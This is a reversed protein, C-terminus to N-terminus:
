DSAVIEFEEQLEADSSGGIWVRFSGTESKLKMDRGFFALDDTHLQFEVIQSQHPELRVRKFGKLEKVPRTVSGVLDRVYLQVVETAAVDSVNTLEVTVTVTDGLSIRSSSVNIDRYEFNAYSLGHGFAFLPTFGADLHFASMGLSTQPAHANIDDIHVISDASPPKGTNKHNYYIPIQGVMRPFTVPLKGSPSEIGFLLDAIAPGGMTGPHWAYLIADVELVINSLTLPRGAMIVVILPKGTERVRRVLEVQAGPLNIDARSHAEGSLIAEEGLFLIVADSNKAADVAEGFPETTKSRSTEMARVYRVDVNDGVLDRIASLGTVSLDADGDFVWTGLQEQPADALPGIVAISSLDSLQLPLAAGENKLMVVSELAAQRSIKLAGEDAIARYDAPNTYPNEFLGLRVKAQLISRVMADIMAIDISGDEVLGAIHNVYADGEMEMNVGAMVAEYASAKDGDTLGHIELQRVSDWDSVVFGDFQWEERLVQRLLFGNATAPVGDLDSFSTMLTIVGADVAAKFPRLYVNRLENEPINTTDYDRGSESAGYGAFHKACAAISGTAALDSGQFGEVMAAGLRSALYPDEGLSEAIRGWRADRSIDVMPAFTWNVGTSAAEEAAIEAGRKVIEPNFSAAQGLPIPLVTKFGHIVDRGVLLPIGLRSEEVVIRQMENVSDVDVCNLVSGIRGARLDDALHHPAHCDSANRQSMQGIKEDLTMEALLLSVRQETTLADGIENASTTSMFMMVMLGHLVANLDFQRVKLGPLGRRLQYHMLAGPVVTVGTIPLELKGSIRKPAPPFKRM